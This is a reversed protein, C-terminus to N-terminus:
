IRALWGVELQVAALQGTKLLEERRLVDPLRRPVELQERQRVFSLADRRLPPQLLDDALALYGDPPPVKGVRISLVVVRELMASLGYRVPALM